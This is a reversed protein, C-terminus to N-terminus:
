EQASLKPLSMQTGSITTRLTGNTGVYNGVSLLIKPCHGFPEERRDNGHWMASLGFKHHGYMQSLIKATKGPPCIPVMGFPNSVRCITKRPATTM